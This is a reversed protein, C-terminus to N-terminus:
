RHPVVVPALGQDSKDGFPNLDIREDGCAPNDPVVVEQGFLRCSCTAQCQKLEDRQFYLGGIMLAIVGLWIMRVVVARVVRWIIFGIVALGFMIFVSVQQLRDADLWTPLAAFWDPIMYAWLVSGLARLPILYGRDSHVRCM